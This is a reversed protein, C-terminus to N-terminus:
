GHRLVTMKAGAQIPQKSVLKLRVYHYKTEKRKRQQKGLGGLRASTSALQLTRFLPRAHVKWKLSNNVTGGCLTALSSQNVPNGKATQAIHSLCHARESQRSSTEMQVTRQVHGTGHDEDRINIVQCRQWAANVQWRECTM